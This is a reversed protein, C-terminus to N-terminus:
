EQWRKIHNKLFTKDGGKFHRGDNIIDILKKMDNADDSDWRLERMLYSKVVDGNLESYKYLARIYTKARNNDSSHHIGTSMNIVSSLEQLATKVVPNPDPFSEPKKNTRLETPSWTKIWKDTFELLWPIAIIVKVDKYDDIKMIEEADLGMTIVIDNSASFSSYTKLTQILFTPKCNEFKTGNFLKKVIVSGFLRDLWGVSGKAKALLIVTSANMGNKVLECAFFMAEKYAKDDNGETKIYYREIETM